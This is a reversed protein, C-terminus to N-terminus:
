TPCAPSFGGAEEAMELVKTSLIGFYERLYPELFKITNVIMVISIYVKFSAPGLGGATLSWHM